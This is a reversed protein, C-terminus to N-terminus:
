FLVSDVSSNFDRIFYFAVEDFIKKLLVYFLLGWGEGGEEYNGGINNKKLERQSRM